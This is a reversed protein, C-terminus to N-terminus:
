HDGQGRYPRDGVLQDGAPDAVAQDHARRRRRSRDRQVLIWVTLGIAMSFLVWQGYRSMVRYWFEDASLYSGLAQGAFFLLGGSAAFILALFAVRAAGALGASYLPNTAIWGVALGYIVGTAIAAAASIPTWVEALEALNM